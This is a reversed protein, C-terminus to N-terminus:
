KIEFDSNNVSGIKVWPSTSSDPRLITAYRIAEYKCGKYEVIDGAYYTNNKRWEKTIEQWSGVVSGPRVGSSFMLAEFISDGQRVRQGKYYARSRYWNDLSELEKQREIEELEAQTPGQVVDEIEPSEPSVSEQYWPKLILNWTGIITASM